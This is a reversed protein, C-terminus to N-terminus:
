TIMGNKPKYWLSLPLSCFVRLPLNIVGNRNMEKTTRDKKAKVKYSNRREGSKKTGVVLYFLLRNFVQGVKINRQEVYGIPPPTVLTFTFPNIM